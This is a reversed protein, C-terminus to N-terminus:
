LVDLKVNDIGRNVLDQYIGEAKEKSDYTMYYIGNQLKKQGKIVESYRPDIWSVMYVPEKLSEDNRAYRQSKRKQVRPVGVKPLMGLDSASALGGNGGVVAGEGDESVGRLISIARQALSESVRNLYIKKM